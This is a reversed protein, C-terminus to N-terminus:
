SGLIEKARAEIEELAAQVEPREDQRIIEVVDLDGMILFLM